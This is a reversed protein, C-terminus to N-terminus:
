GLFRHGIADLCSQIAENVKPDESEAIAGSSVLALLLSEVTDVGANYRQRAIADEEEEQNNEDAGQSGDCDNVCDAQGCSPCTARDFKSELLFQQYNEQSTLCGSCLTLTKM